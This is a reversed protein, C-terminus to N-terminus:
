SFVTEQECNGSFVERPFHMLRKEKIETVVAFFCSERDYGMKKCGKQIISKQELFHNFVVFVSSERSPLKNKMLLKLFFLLQLIRLM